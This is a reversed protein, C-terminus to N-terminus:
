LYLRHKDTSGFGDDGRETASLETVEQLEIKPYPIIILQGIKEGPVFVEKEVHEEVKEWFGEVTEEETPDVLDGVRKFRLIIEGRYGSDIVGVGNALVLRKKSISSRAFVLGVYGEPIEIAIGTGCEIYPDVSNESIRTATLDLGADGTNAYSPIDADHTLKKIKVLM